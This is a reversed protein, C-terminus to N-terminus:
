KLLKMLRRVQYKHEASGAAAWAAARAAALDTDSSIVKLSVGDFIGPTKTFTELKCLHEAVLQELLEDEMDAEPKCWPFTPLKGLLENLTEFQPGAEQESFLQQGNHYYVTAGDSGRAETISAIMATRNSYRNCLLARITKATSDDEHRVLLSDHTEGTWEVEAGGKIKWGARADGHSTFGPAAYINLPGETTAVVSVYECM